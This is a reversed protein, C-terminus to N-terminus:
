TPLQPFSPVSVLRSKGNEFTFSLIIQAYCIMQLRTISTSNEIERSHDRQMIIIRIEDNFCRGCPGKWITIGCRLPHYQARKNETEPRYNDENENYNETNHISEHKKGLQWDYLLCLIETLRQQLNIQNISHQSNPIKWVLIPSMTVSPFWLHCYEWTRNCIELFCQHSSSEFLTGCKQICRGLIASQRRWMLAPCM